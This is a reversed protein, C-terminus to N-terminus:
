IVHVPKIKWRIIKRRLEFNSEDRCNKILPVWKISTSTIKKNMKAEKFEKDFKGITEVLWAFTDTSEAIIKRENDTLDNTESEALDRLEYVGDILVKFFDLLYEKEKAHYAKKEEKLYEKFKEINTDIEAKWKMKIYGFDYKNQPAPPVKEIKKKKKIKGINNTM